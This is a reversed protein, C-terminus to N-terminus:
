LWHSVTHLVVGVLGGVLTGNIRIYQLDRGVQLELKRSMTEADWTRIVRTVMDAITERHTVVTETAVVRVWQNLKARVRADQLLADGLARLAQDLKIALGSDPNGAEDALRQKIGHWVDLTYEHVAQHGLADNLLAHMRAEYEPSDRLQAIFDTVLRQFRMRWESDEDRMEDLTSELAELLRRYFREDIAKPLWRPSNEHVKWRIYDKNQELGSAAMEVVREFLAFHHKGAVLVALLEAALPALRTKDLAAGLRQRIFERVDEDEVANLLAPLARLGYRAAARS